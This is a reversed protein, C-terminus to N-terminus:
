KGTFRMTRKIKEKYFLTYQRKNMVTHKKQGIRQGANVLNNLMIMAYVPLM